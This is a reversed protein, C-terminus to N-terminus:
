KKKIFRQSPQEIQVNEQDDEDSSGDIEFIEETLFIEQDSDNEGDEENNDEL